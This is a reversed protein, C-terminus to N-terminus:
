AKVVKITKTWHTGTIKIFYVGKPLDAKDATVPFTHKGKQLAGANGITMPVEQGMVDFAKVTVKEDTPLNVTLMFNDTFPNPSATIVANMNNEDIGMNPTGDLCLHHIYLDTDTILVDRKDEWAYICGGHGDSVSKPGIQHGAATSVPVGNTAWLATGNANIRQSIVDMDLSSSDQWVIITGGANDTVMNPNLQDYAATTVPVGNAAWQTVGAPSLKQAYIDFDTLNRKDKWTILLGNTSSTSLMDQASQSGPATVVPVGNNAWLITGTSDIRQAYIDYDTGSRKDIWTVYVGGSITDPEIKPDVQTGAANCILLGAAGWLLNGSPSIRQAYVDYDTMNRFDQWVIFAGGRGDKQVRPNLRNAYVTCLPVGGSVWQILGNHNVRQAWVDWGGGSQQEWIVMAGGADDSIIKENHERVTKTAIGVGDVTWQVVGFSDIRQAYVDREIGSRWDSWAVIVGGTMDKTIAATSQDTAETCLAVGNTAWQAYGAANFHQVYIDNPGLGSNVRGDKWAIFAGGFDDKALRMERQKGIETAVPTNISANFNWQGSSFKAAFIFVILVLYQCTNTKKM